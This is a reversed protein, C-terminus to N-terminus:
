CPGEHLVTHAPAKDNEFPIQMLITPEDSPFETFHGALTSVSKLDAAILVSSGLTGPMAYLVQTEPREPGKRGADGQGCASAGPCNGVPAPSTIRILGNLVITLQTYPAWAEGVLTRPELRSWTAVTTNGVAYNVASRYAVPLSFLQWCEIVSYGNRSSLANINLLEATSEAVAVHSVALAA